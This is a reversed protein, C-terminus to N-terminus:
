FVITLVFIFLVMKLCVCKLIAISEIGYRIKKFLINKSIRRGEIKFAQLLKAKYVIKLEIEAQADKLSYKCSYLPM